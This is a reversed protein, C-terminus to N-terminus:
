ITLENTKENSVETISLMKYSIILFEARSFILHFINTHIGYHYILPFTNVLWITM